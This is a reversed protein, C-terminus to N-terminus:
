RTRELIGAAFVVCLCLILISLTHWLSAGAVYLDLLFPLGVFTGNVISTIRNHNLELYSVRSLHRFTGTALDTFNNNDLFRCCLTLRLGLPCLLESARSM